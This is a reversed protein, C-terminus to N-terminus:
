SNTGKTTQNDLHARAAAGIACETPAADHYDDWYLAIRAVQEQTLTFEGNGIRCPVVPGPVVLGMARVANVSFHRVQGDPFTMQCNGLATAESVTVGEITQPTDRTITM